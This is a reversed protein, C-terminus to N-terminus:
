GSIDETLLEGVTEEWREKLREEFYAMIRDYVITMDSRSDPTFEVTSLELVLKEAPTLSDTEEKILKRIVEELDEGIEEYSCSQIRHSLKDVYTFSPPFNGEIALSEDSLNNLRDTVRDCVKVYIDEAVDFCKGTLDAIFNKFKNEYDSHNTDKQKM